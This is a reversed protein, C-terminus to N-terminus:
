AKKARRIADNGDRALVRIEHIHFGHPADNDDVFAKKALEAKFQRDHNRWVDYAKLPRLDIVTKEDVKGWPNGHVKASTVFEKYKEVDEASFDSKPSVIHGELVRGALWVKADYEEGYSQVRESGVFCGYNGWINQNVKVTSM